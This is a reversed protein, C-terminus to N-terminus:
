AQEDKGNREVDVNRFSRIMKSQGDSNADM